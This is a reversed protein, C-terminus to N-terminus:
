ARPPDRPGRAEVTDSFLVREPEQPCLAVDIGPRPTTGDAATVAGASPTHVGALVRLLTTKGAGNRGMVTVVEGARLELDVAHLAEVDGHRVSVDRARLLVGGPVVEDAVVGNAGNVAILRAGAGARARADRVTLPVPEWGVLRGLRAVPPGLALAHIVAAPDGASVRGADVGLALDVWGAVRELRHEALLVTLGHDHVLRQLAAM